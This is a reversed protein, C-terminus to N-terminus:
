RQVAATCSMKFAQREFVELSKVFINKCSYHLNLVSDLLSRQQAIPIKM